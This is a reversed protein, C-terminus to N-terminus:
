AGVNKQWGRYEIASTGFEGRVAFKISDSDFDDIRNSRLGANGNLYAYYLGEMQSPSAALYWSNGTLRSEVILTYANAWINVDSTAVPNTQQLLKRATVELDSSVILFKPAVRIKRKGDLGTQARFAKLAATLGADALASGAGSLLNGHDAHFLAKADDMTVNATILSWVLDGRITNWDLVFRNPILSFANLDDNIFAERTFKIGEAYKKVRITQKSELLSSYKIEGGESIESMGNVSEVQYLNKARFDSVSTERAIMDWFEPAFEYDGRLAKNMVNELLLPFDSTSLDRQNGFIKNAMESRGIIVAKGTREAMLTNAIEHVTLERFDRAGDVKALDFVKPAIRNLLAQEAAERKKEIAEKGVGVGGGHNGDPKAPEAAAFKEIIAQRIEDLPKVSNFMEIAFSDELKAARTSKLIADLRAKNAETAEQRIKNVDVKEPTPAPVQTKEPNESRIIEVTKESEFLEIAKDDNLNAARAILVIADLRAKQEDSANARIEAITKLNQTNLYNIITNISDSGESRIKSKPDAQVPAFSIELPEWDTARLSPKKDKEITGDYKHVRYGVSIGSVIGNELDSILADDARAGLTITAVALGNEFRINDARGLQVMATRPYHNDFVPLGNKAREMRVNKADCALVEDFYGIDWNYMPTPTESAFTVDFSRKAKDFSSKNILARVYSQETKIQKTKPM